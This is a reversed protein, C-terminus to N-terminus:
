DDATPTTVAADYTPVASANPTLGEMMLLKPHGTRKRLLPFPPSMARPSPPTVASANADGRGHDAATKSPRHTKLPLPFFSVNRTPSPPPVASANADAQSCATNWMKAPRASRHSGNQSGIATSGCFSGGGARLASAPASTFAAAAGAATGGNPSAPPPAPSSLPQSSGASSASTRRRSTHAIPQGGEESVVVLHPQRVQSAAQPRSPLPANKACAHAHTSRAKCMCACAPQM